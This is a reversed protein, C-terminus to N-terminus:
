EALEEENPMPDNPMLNQDMIMTNKEMMKIRKNLGSLEADLAQLRSLLPHGGGNKMMKPFEEKSPMLGQDKMMKYEKLLHSPLRGDASETPKNELAKELSLLRSDLRGDDSEAPKNVDSAQALATEASVKTVADLYNKLVTREQRLLKNQDAFSVKSSNELAKVAAKLAKNQAVLRENEAVFDNMSAFTLSCFLAFAFLMSFMVSKIVFHLHSAAL